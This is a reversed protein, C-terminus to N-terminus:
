FPLTLPWPNPIGLLSALKEAKEPEVQTWEHFSMKPTKEDAEKACSGCLWPSEGPIREQPPIAALVRNHIECYRYRPNRETVTSTKAKPDKGWLGFTRSFHFVNIFKPDTQAIYASLRAAAKESGHKDILRGLVRSEEDSVEGETAEAWLIRGPDDPYIM